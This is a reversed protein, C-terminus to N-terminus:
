LAHANLVCDRAQASPLKEVREQRDCSALEDGLVQSIATLPGDAQQLKRRMASM